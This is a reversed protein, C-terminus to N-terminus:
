DSIDYKELYNKLTKRIKIIQNYFSEFNVYCDDVDQIHIFFPQVIRHYDVDPKIIMFTDKEM